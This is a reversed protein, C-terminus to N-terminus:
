DDHTQGAILDQNKYIISEFKDEIISSMGSVSEIEPIAENEGIIDRFNKTLNKKKKVSPVVDM